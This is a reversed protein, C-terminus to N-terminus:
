AAAALLPYKTSAVKFAVPAAKVAGFVAGVFMLGGIALMSVVVIHENKLWWDHLKRLLDITGGPPALPGQPAISGGVMGLVDYPQIAKIIASSITGDPQKSPTWSFSGPKFKNLRQALDDFDGKHIQAGEGGQKLARIMGDYLSQGASGTSLGGTLGSMGGTMALSSLSSASAKAKGWRAQLATLDNLFDAFGSPDKVAWSGSVAGFANALALLREDGSHALYTIESQEVGFEYGGFDSTEYSGFGAFGSSSGFYVDRLDDYDIGGMDLDGMGAGDGGGEGAFFDDGSFCVIAQPEERLPTAVSSASLRAALRQGFSM